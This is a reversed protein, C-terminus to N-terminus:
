TETLLNQLHKIGSQLTAPPYYVFCLRISNLGVSEAFSARVGHMVSTNNKTMLEKVANSINLSSPFQVWIFFGGKPSYFQIKGEADPFKEYVASKLEELAQIMANCREKYLGRLEELRADFLGLELAKTVVPIHIDHNRWILATLVYM